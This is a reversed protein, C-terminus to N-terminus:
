QNAVFCFDYMTPFTVFGVGLAKHFSRCRHKKLIFSSSFSSNNGQPRRPPLLKVTAIAKFQKLALKDYAGYSAEKM